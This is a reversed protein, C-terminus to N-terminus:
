EQTLMDMLDETTFLEVPDDIMYWDIINDVSLDFTRHLMWDIYDLNQTFSYDKLEDGTIYNAIITDGDRRVFRFYYEVTYNSVSRVKVWIDQGILTDIYSAFKSKLEEPDFNHWFKPENSIKIRM